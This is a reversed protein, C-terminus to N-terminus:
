KLSRDKPIEIGVEQELCEDLRHVKQIVKGKNKEGAGRGACARRTGSLGWRLCSTPALYAASTGGRSSPSCRTESSAWSRRGLATADLVEYNEPVEIRDLDAEKVMVPIM